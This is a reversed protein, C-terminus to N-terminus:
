GNNCPQYPNFAPDGYINFEHLAVYKKDLVRTQDNGKIQQEPQYEQDVFSGSYLTLPPTWLFTSNADKSLYMNKANRLALGTTANNKILQLIFDEAIVAGFHLEPFERKLLYRLTANMLGLIGIGLGGPLPRPELYGPDATVRTAGIYTNVGAHIYTQSLTNVPNIGDTRGTICSEVFIVSPGYEMNEISRIDFSGRDALGSRLKPLIRSFPTVFPFGRSDILIDGFEYLNYFGHAFAFILSSKLQDRGGTVRKSSSLIEVIKKPFLLRNLLGTKKIERLNKRTFGERQSRLWLTNRVNYGGTKMQKKLRMNIFTSEGTPFKTPEDRGKGENVIKDIIKSLKTIVPLNQFELGCGTQVLANDKWDGMQKIITHYFITRAILASCDQVDWGTVRGVINEMTPWYSYTDNEPDDPKPDIDGYIFDSPCGYGWLYAESDIRGDPNYYFYMPIMSPDAVVAIYVPNEYYHDRLEELNTANIKALEGLLTNLEDHIEMTHENSPVILNPNTGPQTPGPCTSGNYIINDDAAFAFDTKAFVIGKHYAALYPAISSLGRMLPVYPSELKEVTIKIEYNGNKSAYWRGFVQVTYNGTENYITTEFHIRDEVIRGEEDRLPIGGATSAYIYMHKSPSKVMMYMRDGLAEVHDSDLNRLDIKLLAYKYDKPISFTHYGRTKSILTNIAQTPLVVSSAITGTFNYSISDLIMPMYVDLPNALAIYNTTSNLRNEIVQICEHIIDHISEFKKIPFATTSLNGCVYIYEVGLNHLVNTVTEDIEDTVIIPINQYSALPTAVVGMNYGEQDYKIVLATSSNEWFNQAVSLSVEKPTLDDTINYDVKIGIQKEARKVAKSPAHFNKVYLPIVRQEGNDNYHVALPTAILTYFPNSDSVAIASPMDQNVDLDETADRSDFEDPIYSTTDRGNSVINKQTNNTHAYTGLSSLTLLFAALLCFITKKMSM